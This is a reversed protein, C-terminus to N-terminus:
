EWTETTNIDESVNYNSEQEKLKKQEEVRKRLEEGNENLIDEQRMYHDVISSGTTRRIKAENPLLKELIIDDDDYSAPKIKEPEIYSIEYNDEEGAHSRNDVGPVRAKEEDKLERIRVVEKQQEELKRREEELKKKELEIKLKEEELIKKSEEEVKEKTYINAKLDVQKTPKSTFIDPINEEDTPEIENKSVTMGNQFPNILDDDDDNSNSELLKRAEEKSLIKEKGRKVKPQEVTKIIEKQLNIPEVIKNIEQPKVEEKKDEAVIGTNILNQTRTVDKATIGTSTTLIENDEIVNNNIKEREKREEEEKLKQKELIISQKIEELRDKERKADLDFDNKAIYLDKNVYHEMEIEPFKEIFRKYLMEDITKKVDNEIHLKYKDEDKYLEGMYDSKLADYKKYIEPQELMFSLINAGIRRNINDRLTCFVQMLDVYGLELNKVFLYKKIREESKDEYFCRLGAQTLLNGTTQVENYTNKAIEWIPIDMYNWGLFAGFANPSTSDKIILKGLYGHSNEIHNVFNEDVSFKAIMDLIQSLRAKNEYTFTIPYMKYVVRPIGNIERIRNNSICLLARYADKIMPLEIYGAIYVGVDEGDQVIPYYNFTDFLYLKSASDKIKRDVINEEQRTLETARKYNKLKGNQFAYTEKSIDFLNCLRTANAFMLSIIEEKTFDMFIKRAVNIFATVIHGKFTDKKMYHKIDKSFEEYLTNIDRFMYKDDLLYKKMFIMTKRKNVKEDELCLGSAFLNEIQQFKRGYAYEDMVIEKSFDPLGSLIDRVTHATAEQLFYTRHLTFTQAQKKQKENLNQTIGIHKGFVEVARPLKGSGELVKTKENFIKLFHLFHTVYKDDLKIEIKNTREIADMLEKNKLTTSFNQFTIDMPIYNEKSYEIIKGCIDVINEIKPNLYVITEKFNEGIEYNYLNNTNINILTDFGFMKLSKSVIPSYESLTVEGSKGEYIYPIKTKYTYELEKLTVPMIKNELFKAIAFVIPSDEKKCKELLTDQKNLFNEKWTKHVSLLFREFKKLVEQNLAKEVKVANSQPLGQLFRYIDMAIGDKATNFFVEIYNEILKHPENKNLTIMLEYAEKDERCVIM